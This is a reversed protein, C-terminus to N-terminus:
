GCNAISPLNLSYSSVGLNVHVPPLALLESLSNREEFSMHLNLDNRESLLSTNLLHEYKAELSEARLSVTNILKCPMLTIFQAVKATSEEPKHLFSLLILLPGGVYVVEPVNVAIMFQWTPVSSKWFLSKAKAGFPSPQKPQSPDLLASRCTFTRRGMLYIKPDPGAVPRCPLCYLLDLVIAKKSKGSSFLGSIGSYTQILTELKYTVLGEGADYGLM